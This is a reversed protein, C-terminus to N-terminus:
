VKGVKDVKNLGNKAIDSLGKLGDALAGTLKLQDASLQAVPSTQERRAARKALMEQVRQEREMARLSASVELGRIQAERLQRSAEARAAAEASFSVESIAQISVGRIKNLKNILWNIGRIVGNVLTEVID